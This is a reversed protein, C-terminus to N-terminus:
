LNEGLLRAVIENASKAANAISSCLDRAAKFRQCGSDMNYGIDQAKATARNRDDGDPYPANAFHVKAQDFFEPLIEMLEAIQAVLAEGHVAFGNNAERFDDLDNLNMAM